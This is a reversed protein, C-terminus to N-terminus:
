LRRRLLRRVMEGSIGYALHLTWERFHDSLPEESPRSSLGLVPVAIEHAGVFLASGFGGGSLVPHLSRFRRPAVEMVVGYLAGMATGFGYHVLSGAKPKQEPALPHGALTALQSAAKITSDEGKEQPQEHAGPNKKQGDQMKKLTEAAKSWGKQSETMVLSAALGAIAGASLGKLLRARPVRTAIGMSCGWHVEQSALSTDNSVREQEALETTSPDARATLLNM